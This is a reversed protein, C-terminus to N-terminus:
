ESTQPPCEPTFHGLVDGTNRDIFIYTGPCVIRRKMPAYLVAWYTHGQLPDKLREELNRYTDQSGWVRPSNFHGTWLHNDLDFSVTSHEVDVGNRVAEQDAVALLASRSWERQAYSASSSGFVATVVVATTLWQKRARNWM